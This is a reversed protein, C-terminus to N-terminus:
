KAFTGSKICYSGRVGPDGQTLAEICDFGSPCTCTAFRKDPAKCRCTCYVKDDIEKDTPCVFGQSAAANCSERPDGTLNFVGCVRTACQVSASEIYREGNVFGYVKTDVGSTKDKVTAEPIMEPLCPDGVGATCAAVTCLIALVIVSSFTKGILTKRALDRKDMNKLNDM